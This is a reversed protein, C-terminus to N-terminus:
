FPWLSTTSPRSVARRSSSRIPDSKWAWAPRRGSPWPPECNQSGLRLRIAPSGGAHGPAGSGPRTGADSLRTGRGDPELDFHGATSPDPGAREDGDHPGAPGPPPATGAYTSERQTLPTGRRRGPRRFLGSSSTPKLIPLYLSPHLNRPHAPLHGTGRPGAAMGWFGLAPSRIESRSERFFGDM